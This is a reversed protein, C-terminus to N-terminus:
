APLKFFCITFRRRETDAGMTVECEQAASDYSFRLQQNGPMRPKWPTESKTRTLLIPDDDQKPPDEDAAYSSMNGLLAASVILMTKARM